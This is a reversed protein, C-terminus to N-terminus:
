NEENGPDPDDLSERQNFEEYAKRFGEEFGRKYDESEHAAAQFEQMRRISAIIEPDKIFEEYWSPDVPRKTAKEIAERLFLLDALDPFPNIKSGDDLIIPRLLIKTLQNAFLPDETNLARVISDMNMIMVTIMNQNDTGNRNALEEGLAVAIPHFESISTKKIMPPKDKFEKALQSSLKVSPDYDTLKSRKM